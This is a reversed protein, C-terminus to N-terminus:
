GQADLGASIKQLPTMEKGDGLNPRSRRSPAGPPTGGGNKTDSKFLSAYDESKSVFEVLDAIGMPEGTTPNTRADGDDDVVVVSFEGNENRSARVFDGIVRKAVKKNVARDGLADDLQGDIMLGALQDALTGIEKDKAALATANAAKLDARVKEIETANDGKSKLKGQLEAIRNDIAARIAEPGDGFESLPGLDIAKGRLDDAEKRTAKVTRGLGDIVKVASKIAPSDALKFSGDSGEEYFSRFDEPVTELSEVTQNDGLVFRM